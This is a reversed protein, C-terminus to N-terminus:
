IGLFQKRPFLIAPFPCLLTKRGARDVLLYTCKAKYKQTRKKRVVIDSEDSRTKFRHSYHIASPQRSLLIGFMRLITGKRNRGACLTRSTEMAQRRLLSLWLEVHSSHPIRRRRCISYHLPKIDCHPPRFRWFFVKSIVQSNPKLEEIISFFEGITSLEQIIFHIIECLFKKFFLIKFLILTHYM